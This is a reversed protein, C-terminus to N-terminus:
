LRENKEPDNEGKPIMISFTSGVGETSEAAVSGGHAEAIWKVMSLGLGAHSGETRAADAQYFREWVHPLADPAIGTGHDQVSVTFMGGTEKLIVKVTGNERSYRLANSILNVVM